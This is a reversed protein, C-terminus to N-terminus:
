LDDKCRKGPQDLCENIPCSCLPAFTEVTPRDCGCAATAVWREYVIGHACTWRMEAIVADTLRKFGPHPAPSTGDAYGCDGCRKGGLELQCPPCADKAHQPCRPSGGHSPDFDCTCRPTEKEGATCLECPRKSGDSMSITKDDFCNPCEKEDAPSAGFVDKAHQWDREAEEEASLPQAKTESARAEVADLENEAMTHLKRLTERAIVAENLELLLRRYDDFKVYGGSQSPAMRAAVGRGADFLQIEYRRIDTPPEAKTLPPSPWPKWHTVTNDRDREGFIGDWAQQLDDREQQLQAVIEVNMREALELQKIKDRQTDILLEMGAANQRALDGKAAADEAYALKQKLTDIETRLAADPVNGCVQCHEKSPLQETM